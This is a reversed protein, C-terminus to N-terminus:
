APMELIRQMLRATSYGPELRIRIVKCGLAEIEGVPDATALVGSEQSLSNGGEVFLDPMLRALFERPSPQDFEVVYDVAHFAALIEARDAVGHILRDSSPQNGSSSLVAVVLVDGQSRAQERLRVHGPHLLAFSGSACVVGKGARKWEGRYVDLEGRSVVQGL